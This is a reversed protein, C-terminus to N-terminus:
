KPTVTHKQAKGRTIHRVRSGFSLSHTTETLCKLTPNINVIVIMKADGGLSDQLFHTLRSNRYPIHTRSPTSLAKMVDGLASLSRNVHSTELQAEGKVGSMGVCESGALDVLRLKARTSKIAFGLKQKCKDTQQCEVEITVISHSRSSHSNMQTPSEARHSSGIRILRQVEAIETVDVTIVNRVELGGEGVDSYEVKMGSSNMSSTGRPSILLDRIDNNYIEVMSMTLKVHFLDQKQRRISFLEALARPIVGPTDTTGEMTYTKGSGTQGYALICVNYGDFVSTLLPKVDTFVEDQSSTMPYIMDMDFMRVKGNKLSVSITDDTLIKINIEKKETRLFPRIRCFVRINGKEEILENQLQRRMTLELQYKQKVYDLQETLKANNSDDGYNKQIIRHISNTVFKPDFQSAILNPFASVEKRLQNLTSKM